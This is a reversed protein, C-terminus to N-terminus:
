KQLEIFPSGGSPRLYLAIRDQSLFELYASQHTGSLDVSLGGCDVGVSDSQTTLSLFHREGAPPSQQFEYTGTAVKTGMHLEFTGNANYTYSSVCEDAAVVKWTGVIETAEAFVPLLVFLALSTPRLSISRTGVSTTAAALNQGTVNLAHPAACNTRKGRSRSPHLAAHLRARSFVPRTATDALSTQWDRLRKLTVGRGSAVSTKRRVAMIVTRLSRVSILARVM